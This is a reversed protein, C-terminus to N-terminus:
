GGGPVSVVLEVLKLGPGAHLSKADVYYRSENCDIEYHSNSCAYRICYERHRM